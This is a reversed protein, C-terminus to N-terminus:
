VAVTEADMWTEFVSVAEGVDELVEICDFVEVIVEVFELVETLDTDSVAVIVEVM